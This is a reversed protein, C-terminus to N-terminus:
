RPLVAATQVEALRRAVEREDAGPALKLVDAVTLTLVAKESGEPAAYPIRDAGKFVPRGPEIVTKSLNQVQAKLAAKEADSEKRYTDFEAKITDFEALRKEIADLKSVFVGAEDAPKPTIEDAKEPPLAAPVPEPQHGEHGSDGKDCRMCKLPGGCKQCMAVDGEKQVDGPADAAAVDEESEQIESVIFATLADCAAQLATLQEPPEAHEESSEVAMLGRIMELASLATQVDMIEGGDYKKVEGAPAEPQIEPTEPMPVEEDTYTLGDSDAKVLQIACSPNCPSDVLSVESLRKLFIRVANKEEGNVKVVEPIKKESSAGISFGALTGDLVKAQTDKAGASVFCELGIAKQDDMPTISMARGVAKKSDHQERINGPWEAFVKKASGYDVIETDKDLTESTAIGYVKLRGDEMVETKTIPAYINM